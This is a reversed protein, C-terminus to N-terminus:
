ILVPFTFVFSLHAGLARNMDGLGLMQDCREYELYKIAVTKLCCAWIVRINWHSVIFCVLRANELVKYRFYIFLQFAHLALFDSLYTFSLFYILVSPHSQMVIQVHPMWGKIFWGGEFTYVYAFCFPYTRDDLKGGRNIKKKLGSNWKDTKDNM